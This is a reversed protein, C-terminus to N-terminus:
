LYANLIGVIKEAEVKPHSFSQEHIILKCDNASCYKQVADIMSDQLVFSEKFDDENDIVRNRQKIFERWVSESNKLFIIIDFDPLLSYDKRAISVIEDYYDDEETYLWKLGEDKHYLYFLKDYCSDIISLDGSKRIQDAEYYYPVRVSRFWMMSTFSGIVERNKVAKGWECEEPELFATINLLKSIEKTTSSKGSGPLGFAGIIKGQKSMAKQSLSFIM